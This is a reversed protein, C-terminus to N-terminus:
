LIDYFTVNKLIQLLEGRLRGTLLTLRRYGRTTPESRVPKEVEFLVVMAEGEQVALGGLSAGWGAGLRVGVLGHLVLQIPVLCFINRLIVSLGNEAIDL